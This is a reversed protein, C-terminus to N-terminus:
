GALEVDQRVGRIVAYCAVPWVFNGDPGHIQIGSVVAYDSVDRDILTELVGELDSQIAKQAIMTLELLDPAEGSPIEKLLRSRILGLEIDYPDPELSTRGGALERQFVDLAGCAASEDRRGRRGCVGIRGDESIAVHPLTYFVYRERGDMHPSHQMAALLGTKGALFMGALSSFNFAHNWTDNVAEVMSQCLEDRCVGICAISNDATFGLNGLARRTLDVFEAEPYVNNFFRRMSEEFM